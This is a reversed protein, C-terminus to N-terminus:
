KIIVELLSIINYTIFGIFVKVQPIQGSLKWYCGVVVDIFSLLLIFDTINKKM